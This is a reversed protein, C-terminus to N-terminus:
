QSVPQLTSVARGQRHIHICLGTDTSKVDSLVHLMHVYSAMRHPGQAKTTQLWNKWLISPHCWRGKNLKTKELKDDLPSIWTRRVHLSRPTVSVDMENGKPHLNVQTPKM